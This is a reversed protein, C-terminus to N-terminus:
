RYNIVAIVYNLINICKYKSFVYISIKFCEITTVSLNIYYYNYLIYDYLRIIIM